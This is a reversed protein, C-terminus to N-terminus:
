VKGIELNEGFAPNKYIFIDPKGAERFMKQVKRKDKAKIILSKQKHNSYAIVTDKNTYEIKSSQDIAINM